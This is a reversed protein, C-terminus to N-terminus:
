RRGRWAPYLPEPVDPRLGRRLGLAERYLERVDLQEAFPFFIQERILLSMVDGGILPDLEDRPAPVWAGRLGELADGLALSEALRTLEKVGLQAMAETLHTPSLWPPSPKLEGRESALAYASDLLACLLGPTREGRRERLHESLWVSVSEGSPMKPGALLRALRERDPSTRSSELSPFVSARLSRSRRGREGKLSEAEALLRKSRDLLEEITLDEVSSKPASGARTAKHPAELHEILDQWLRERPGVPLLPGVQPESKVRTALPSAWEIAARHAPFRQIMWQGLLRHQDDATWSLAVTRQRLEERESRRLLARELTDPSMLLRASLWPARNPQRKSQHQLLLMWLRVLPGIDVREPLDYILVVPSASREAEAVPLDLEFNLRSLARRPAPRSMTHRAVDDILHSLWRKLSQHDELLTEDPLTARLAYRWNIDDQPADAMFPLAPQAQWPDLSLLTPSAALTTKGSGPVGTVVLTSAAAIQEYADLRVLRDGQSM